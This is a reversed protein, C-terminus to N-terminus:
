REAAPFVTRTVPPPEPMPAAVTRAKACAPAGRMAMMPRVREESSRVLALMLLDFGSVFTKVTVPSMEDLFDISWAKVVTNSANPFISMKTALEPYREDGAGTASSSVVSQNLANSILARPM